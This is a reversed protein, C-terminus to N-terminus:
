LSRVQQPEAAAAQLAILGGYSHGIVHVAPVMRLIRSVREVDLRFSFPTPEPWPQSSGHGSLDPVITRKHREALQSSLRRWQRGSLGASHLLLVPVGAGADIVHLGSEAAHNM